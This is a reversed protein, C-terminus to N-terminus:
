RSLASEIRARIEKPSPAAGDPDDGQNEAVRRVHREWEAATVCVAHKISSKNISGYIIDIEGDDRQWRKNGSDAEIERWAHGAKRGKDLLEEIYEDQAVDGKRVHVERCVKGSLFTIVTFGRDTSFSAEVLHRDLKAEVDVLGRKMKAGVDEPQDGLDAWARGSCCALTILMPIVLKKPM